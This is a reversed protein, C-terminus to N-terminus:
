IQTDVKKREVDKQVWRSVDVISLRPFRSRTSYSAMNSEPAERAAARRNRRGRPAKACCIGTVPIWLPSSPLGGGTRFFTM